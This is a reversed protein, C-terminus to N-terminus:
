EAAESAQGGIRHQFFAELRRAGHVIAIVQLPRTQDRYAIVYSHVTWFRHRADALDERHHGMTPTEALRIFAAYLREL